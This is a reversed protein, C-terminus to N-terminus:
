PAPTAPTTPRESVLSASKSKEPCRQAYEDLLSLANAFASAPFEQVQSSQFILLSQQGYLTQHLQTFVRISKEKLKSSCSARFAFMGPIYPPSSALVRLDRGIQPNLEIVTNYARRAVLCADAQRFFVPLIARPAKAAEALVGALDSSAPLSNKLLEVDLWPLALSMRAGSLVLLKRGKLDALTQLPGQKHVLLLYTETPDGAFVSLLFRDFAVQTRLVRYEEMTLSIADILGTRVADATQETTTTILPDPDAEIENERAITSSLAKISARADAENLGSFM